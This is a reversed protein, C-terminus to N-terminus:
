AHRGKGAKFAAEIRDGFHNAELHQRNRRGLREAESRVKAAEDRLARAEHVRRDLEETDQRRLLRIIWNM